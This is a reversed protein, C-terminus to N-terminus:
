KSFNSLSKAIEEGKGQRIEELTLGNLEHPFILWKDTTQVYFDPPLVAKQMKPKFYPTAIRIDQPTNERSRKKLENIVENLTLGTDYVDDVLLLRDERNAHAILYELQDVQISENAVGIKQNDYRRTRIPIHDSHIGQYSFFEQVAIGVPTGGRWIAAIFNPHFNADLIKRALRYSDLLLQDASIFHKEVM